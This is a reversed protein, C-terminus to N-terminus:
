PAAAYTYSKAYWAGGINSYLTVYVTGTTPLGTVAKSTATGLNGGFISGQGPSTGVDLWYMTVGTGASWTFTAASGNLVTGPTPTLIVARPDQGTAAVYTYPYVQWTGNIKSYLSVYVARGDMPLGTVFQATASGVNGAFINGQWLDTGVDLWYATVGIGPTWTFTTSFGTLTSGPSPSILVARPDTGATYTYSNGYWAGNINTYLTVYVTSGNMPLPAVGWATTTLGMNGAHINGQGPSTGIDLWYASAGIGATWSFTVQSGSLVSGPPPSIMVAKPDTAARYTYSNVQWAGSIFSYLSVFVTNGDMPLGSVAQSRATGVNAGFINGRGAARGVDLWYATAGTGATWTFTASSGALTSGPVPSIMAARSDRAATYTYSYGYWTGNINSYLNAYITRGDTPIGSVVQSTATGVNGGFIDGKGASTGVDLWYATAGPGAIWSFTM